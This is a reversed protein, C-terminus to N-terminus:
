KYTLGIRFVSKGFIIQFSRKKISSSPASIYVYVRILALLLNIFLKTFIM